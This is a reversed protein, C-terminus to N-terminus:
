KKGVRFKIVIDNQSSDVDVFEIKYGLDKLDKIPAMSDMTLLIASNENKVAPINNSSIENKGSLRILRNEKRMMEIKRDVAYLKMCQICLSRIGKRAGTKPATHSAYFDEKPDKYEMCKICLIKGDKWVDGTFKKFGM